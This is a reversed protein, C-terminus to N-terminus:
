LKAQQSSGAKKAAEAEAKAEDRLVTVLLSNARLTAVKRLMLSVRKSRRLLKGSPSKPISEVLKIGGKLQKYHAVKKEMWKNIAAPADREKKGGDSLVVLIRTLLTLIMPRGVKLYVPRLSHEGYARPYETAQDENWVGIVACDAM